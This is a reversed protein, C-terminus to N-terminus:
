KFIYFQIIIVGKRVLMVMKLFTGLRSVFIFMNLNKKIEFLKQIKIFINGYSCIREKEQWSWKIAHEEQM